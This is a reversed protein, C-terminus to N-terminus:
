RSSRLFPYFVVAIFAFFFQFVGTQALIYQKHLTLYEQPTYVTVQGHNNFIYQGNQFEPDIGGGTIWLWVSYMAYVWLCGLVALMWGPPNGLLYAITKFYGRELMQERTVPRESKLFFITYAWLPFVGCFVVLFSVPYPEHYDNRVYLNIGTLVVWGVM